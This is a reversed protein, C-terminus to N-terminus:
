SVGNWMSGPQAFGETQNRAIASVLYLSWILYAISFVVGAYVVGELGLRSAGLVSLAVGLLSTGIKPPILKRTQASSLLSLVAVQAASYIGASLVMWPMWASVGRYESAVLVSLLPVRILYTIVAAPVTLFLVALTLWHNLRRVRVTRGPDSGDGAWSFLVPVILQTMLGSVITIPYYCLQYLAAYMGVEETTSFAQLSWRDSAMQAWTFLGWAAFPWGYSRMQKVWQAIQGTTPSQQSAQMLSLRYRLFLYQSSLVIASALGYGLMAAQGFAGLTLVMMVAMLFRLWPAIGEHWAVVVRQRAANQMGDLSASCGSFLAFVFSTMCLSLWTTYGLAWLGTSMALATFAVVAMSQGFLIKVGQLYAPHQRAECAPAWFRLSAGTLPSLLTQQVLTAVTMGLALRGYEFPPLFSTLLRVGVISGLAAATQGLTIWFFERGARGLRSRNLDLLQSVRRKM